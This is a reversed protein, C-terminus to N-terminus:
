ERRQYFLIYASETVVDESSSLKCVSSDDFDYWDGSEPDKAYATYHGGGTSGFHNTIGILDYYLPGKEIEMKVAEDKFYDMPLDPNVVYESLDFGTVPFDVM